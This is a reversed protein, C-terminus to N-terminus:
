PVPYPTLQPAFGQGIINWRAPEEISGICLNCCTFRPWLTSGSLHEIAGSLSQLYPRQATYVAEAAQKAGFQALYDPALAQEPPSAVNFCVPSPTPYMPQIFGAITFAAMNASVGTVYALPNHAPAHVPFGYRVHLPGYTDFPACVPTLSDYMAEIIGTIKSEHPVMGYAPHVTGTGGHCFMRIVDGVCLGQASMTTAILNFGMLQPLFNSVPVLGLWNGIGTNQIYDGESAFAYGSPFATLEFLPTCLSGVSAATITLKLARLAPLMNLTRGEVQSAASVFGGVLHPRNKQNLPPGGYVMEGNFLAMQTTCAATVLGMHGSRDTGEIFAMPVNHTVRVCPHFVPVGMIIHTCWDIGVQVTALMCNSPAAATVAAMMAAEPIFPPMVATTVPAGTPAAASLLRAHTLMLFLLLPLVRVM